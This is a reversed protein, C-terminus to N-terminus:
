GIEKSDLNSHDSQWNEEPPLHMPAHPLNFAFWMFWPEDGQKAIWDIADDTKDVPAYGIEGTVEGNIVKNWSFFHAPALM